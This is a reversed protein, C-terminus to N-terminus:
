PKMVVQTFDQTWNRASVFGTVRPSMARANLDHVVFLWEAQDVVRAHFQAILADRAPQDFTAAIKAGLADLEPDRVNGWNAGAPAIRSSLMTTLVAFDPDVTTWSYNMGDFGHNEPSQAGQSRRTRVTNWDMVEFTIQIGVAALQQQLAENMPLPQMQGSGSPSIVIRAKVPHDPGYGAEALLRKAEAPDTRYRM